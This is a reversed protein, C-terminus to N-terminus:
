RCHSPAGDGAGHDAGGGGPRRRAADPHVQDARRYQHLPPGSRRQPWARGCGQGAGCGGPRGGGGAGHDRFSTIDLRSGAQRLIGGLQMMSQAMRQQAEAPVDWQSASAELFAMYAKGVDAWPVGGVTLRITADAPIWQAFLPKPALALGAMEVDLSGTGNPGAAGGFGEALRLRDIAVQAEPAKVQLDAITWSFEGVDGFGAVMREAIGIMKKVTELPLREIQKPDAEQDSLAAATNEMMGAYAGFMEGYAGIVLRVDMGGMTAGYAAHGLTFREVGAEDFASLGSAEMKFVADHRSPDTAPDVRSSWSVRDITVKGPQGEQGIAVAEARIETKTFLKQDLDVVLNTQLARSTFTVKRQGSPEAACNLPQDSELRWAATGTSAARYTQAECRLTLTRPRTKASTDLTLDIGPFVVTYGAGAPEVTVPGTFLPQQQVQIALIPKLMENLGDRLAAASEPTAQAFAMGALWLPVTGLLIPGLRRMM